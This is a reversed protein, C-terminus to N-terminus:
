EAEHKVEQALKRIATAIHRPSRDALNKSHYSGEAVKAAREYAEALRREAAEAQERNYKAITRQDALMAELERVRDEAAELRDAAHAFLSSQLFCDEVSMHDVARLRAVLDDTM